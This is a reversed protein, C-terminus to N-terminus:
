AQGSRATGRGYPLWTAVVASAKAEWWPPQNKMTVSQLDLLPDNINFKGDHMDLHEQLRRSERILEPSPTQWTGDGFRALRQDLYPRVSRWKFHHVPVPPLSASLRHNPSRHNGDSVPVGARVAIIKRPDARLVRHTILGGLPYCSDLGITFAWGSLRGDAAVRDLLLGGATVAGAQSARKLTDDLSTPHAHFEDVDALLHWGDGARERLVDRLETNVHQHWPGQVTLAPTIGNDRCIVALRARQNRQSDDPIHLALLFRSIDQAKYHALWAELLTTEVPGIIAIMTKQSTM